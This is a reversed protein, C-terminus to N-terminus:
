PTFRVQVGDKELPGRFPAPPPGFPAAKHKLDYLYAILRLGFM